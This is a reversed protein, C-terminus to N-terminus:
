KQCKIIVSNPSLENDAELPTLCLVLALQLADVGVHVHKQPIRLFEDVALVSSAETKDKNPTNRTGM